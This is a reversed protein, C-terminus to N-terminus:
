KPDGEAFRRVLEIRMSLRLAGYAGLGLAGLVVIGASADITNRPRHDRADAVARECEVTGPDPGHGDDDRCDLPASHVQWARWSAMLLILALYILLGRTARRKMEVGEGGASRACETALSARKAIDAVPRFRGNM